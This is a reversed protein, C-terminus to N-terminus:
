FRIWRVEPRAGFGCEVVYWLNDLGVGGRLQTLMTTPQNDPRRVDCTMGILFHGLSIELRHMRHQSAFSTRSHSHGCQFFLQDGYGAELSTGWFTSIVRPM